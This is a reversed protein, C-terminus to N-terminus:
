STVAAGLGLVGFIVFYFIVMLAFIKLRAAWITKMDDPPYRMSTQFTVSLWMLAKVIM